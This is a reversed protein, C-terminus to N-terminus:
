GALFVSLCVLVILLCVALGLRCSRSEGAMGTDRLWVVVVLGAVYGCVVVCLLCCCVCVCGVALYQNNQNYMYM